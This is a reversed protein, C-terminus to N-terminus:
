ISIDERVWAIAEDRDFFVRRQRYQHPQRLVFLRIRQNALTDPLVFAIRGGLEPYADTLEQGRARSYPTQTVEPGSLDQVIRLPQGSALCTKMETDCADIWADVVSRTMKEVIFIKIRGDDLVIRSLGPLLKESDPLDDATDPSTNQNENNDNPPDTM